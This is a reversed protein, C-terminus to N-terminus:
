GDEGRDANTQHERADDGGDDDGAEDEDLVWAVLFVSFLHYLLNIHFLLQTFVHATSCEKKSSIAERACSNYVRACM